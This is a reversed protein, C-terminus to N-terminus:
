RLLTKQRGSPAGVIQSDEPNDVNDPDLELYDAVLVGIWKFDRDTIMVLLRKYLKSFASM